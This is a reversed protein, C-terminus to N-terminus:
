ASITGRENKKQKEALKVISKNFYYKIELIEKKGKEYCELKNHGQKFHNTKYLQINNILIYKQLVPLQM